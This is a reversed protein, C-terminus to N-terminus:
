AHEERSADLMALDHAPAHGPLGLAAV